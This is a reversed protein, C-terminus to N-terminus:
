KTSCDQKLHRSGSCPKTIDRTIGVFMQRGGALRMASIALDMPFEAGDRRRGVVERGIGIVKAEGTRRYNGVYQDHEARFPEPMLVKVNRGIAEVAAYGFIREAAPNFSRIVAHEDITVIGDVVTGVVAKLHENKSTLVAHFRTRSAQHTWALTTMFLYAVLFRISHATDYSRTGSLSPLQLLLAFGVLFVTTAVAGERRGLFFFFLLPLTLQYYLFPSGIAVFLCLGVGTGFLLVRYATRDRVGLSPALASGTVVSLMVIQTRMASLNDTLYNFISFGVLVLSAIGCIFYFLQKRRRTDSNETEM